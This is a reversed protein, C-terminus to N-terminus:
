AFNLNPAKRATFYICVHVVHLGYAPEPTIDVVAPLFIRANRNGWRHRLFSSGPGFGFSLVSQDGLWLPPCARGRDRTRDGIGVARCTRIGFKRRGRAPRPPCRCVGPPDLFARCLGATVREGCAAAAPWGTRSVRRRCLAGM